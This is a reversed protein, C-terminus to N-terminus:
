KVEQVRFQLPVGYGRLYTLTGLARLYHEDDGAKYLLWVGPQRGTAIAYRISQGFAADQKSCWEVEWAVDDTLVDVRDGNPLRYEATGSHQSALWASWAVENATASPKDAALVVLALLCCTHM